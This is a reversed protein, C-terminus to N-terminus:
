VPRVCSYSNTEACVHKGLDNSPLLERGSLLYNNGKCSMKVVEYTMNSRSGGTCAKIKMMSGTSMRDLVVAFVDLVWMEGEISSSKDHMGTESSGPIHTHTPQPLPDLFTAVGWQCIRVTIVGMGTLAQNYRLGVKVESVKVPAYGGRCQLRDM